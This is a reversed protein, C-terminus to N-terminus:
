KIKKFWIKGSKNIIFLRSNKILIIVATGILSLTLLFNIIVWPTTKSVEFISTNFGVFFSGILTWLFLVERLLLGTLSLFLLVSFVNLEEKLIWNIRLNKELFFVIIILSTVNLIGLLSQLIVVNTLM